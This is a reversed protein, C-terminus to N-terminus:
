SREDQRLDRNKEARCVGYVGKEKLHTNERDM